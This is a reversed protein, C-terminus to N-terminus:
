EMQMNDMIDCTQAHTTQERKDGEERERVEVKERQSDVQERGQVGVEVIDFGGLILVVASVCLSSHQVTAICLGRVSMEGCPNLPTYPKLVFDGEQM